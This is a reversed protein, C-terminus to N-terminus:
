RNGAREDATEIGRSVRYDGLRSGELLPHVPMASGEAFSDRCTAKVVLSVNSFIPSTSCFAMGRPELPSGLRRSCIVFCGGLSSLTARWAGRQAAM